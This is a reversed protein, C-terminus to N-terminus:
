AIWKGHLTLGHEEFYREQMDLMLLRMQGQLAWRNRGNTRQRLPWNYEEVEGDAWVTLCGCLWEGAGIVPDNVYHEFSFYGQKM